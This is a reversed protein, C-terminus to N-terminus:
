DYGFLVSTYHPRMAFREQASEGLDLTYYGIQHFYTLRARAEAQIADFGAQLLIDAIASIRGLDVIRVRKRVPEDILAWQRIAAELRPDFQREEMWLDILRDMRERPTGAEALRNLFHRANSNEWDLLLQDLLDQRNKFRWYFGGRTVGLRGALPSIQVASIGGEILMERAAAIWDREVPTDRENDARTKERM